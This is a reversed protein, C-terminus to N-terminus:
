LFPKHDQYNTEVKAFQLDFWKGQHAWWLGQHGPGPDSPRTQCQRWGDDSLDGPDRTFISLVIYCGVCTHQSVLDSLIKKIGPQPRDTVSPSVYIRLIPYIKIINMVNMTFMFSALFTWVIQTNVMQDPSFHVILFRVSNHRYQWQPSVPVQYGQLTQLIDIGLFMNRDTETYSIVEAFKQFDNFKPTTPSKFNNEKWLIQDSQKLIKLKAMILFLWFMSLTLILHYKRLKKLHCSLLCCEQIDRM